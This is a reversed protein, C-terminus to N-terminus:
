VNNAKIGKMACLYRKEEVRKFQNWEAQWFPFLGRSVDGRNGLVGDGHTLFIFDSVPMGTM